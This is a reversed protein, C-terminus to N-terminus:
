ICLPDSSTPSSSNGASILQGNSDKIVIAGNEVTMIAWVANGNTDIAALVKNNGLQGGTLKLQRALIDANGGTNKTSTLEFASARDNVIKINPQCQGAPSIFKVADQGNINKESKEARNNLHIVLPVTGGTSTINSIADPNNGATFTGGINLWSDNGPLLMRKFFGLDSAMFKESMLQGAKIQDTTGTNIVAPVPTQPSYASVYSVGVALVAAIGIIKISNFLQKM